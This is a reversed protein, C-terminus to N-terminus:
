PRQRREHKRSVVRKAAAYISGSGMGYEEILERPTGSQGFRNHVGIFEMPV